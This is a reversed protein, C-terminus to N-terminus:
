KGAAEAARVLELDEERAVVVVAQREAGAKALAGLRTSERRNELSDAWGSCQQADRRFGGRRGKIEMAGWKRAEEEVQSQRDRLIPRNGQPHQERKESALCM